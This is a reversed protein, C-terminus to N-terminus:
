LKMGIPEKKFDGQGEKDFPSRTFAQLPKLVARAFLLGTHLREGREFSPGPPHRVAM